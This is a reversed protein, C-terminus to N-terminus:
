SSGRAVIVLAAAVALLGIIIGVLLLMRERPMAPQVVASGSARAALGMADLSAILEDASQPRAAPEKELCQMILAALEPPLEPRRESLPPPAETVHAAVIAHEGRSGFPHAGTVAEYAVVGLSYIDARHDLGADGLAQEPAMYAPTGLSTGAKTLTSTPHHEHEIAGQKRARRVARAIGFDAVVAHNDALLINAPKIDRHVVGHRHAYSLASAVDRMLRLASETSMPGRTLRERLTEGDVFPMVYYLLGGAEGSDHLPLIHPHTLGATVRIERLFREGSLVVGLASKLVKLAVRREHRLDRALYVNAMGGSGLQREISYRGALAARLEGTMATRSELEAERMSATRDDRNGPAPTDGRALLERLQAGRDPAEPRPEKSDTMRNDVTRRGFMRTDM